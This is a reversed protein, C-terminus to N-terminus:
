LIGAVYLGFAPGDVTSGPEQLQSWIYRVGIGYPGLLWEARVTYGLTTDFNRNVSSASGSGKMTAGLPVYLGAGLRLPKVDVTELLEFPFSYYDISGNSASTGTYKVGITAWTRLRDELLPLFAAGISLYLGTNAEMTSSSGDTYPIRILRNSGFDGGFEWAFAV